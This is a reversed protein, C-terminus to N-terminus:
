KRGRRILSLVGRFYDVSAEAGKRTAVLQPAFGEFQDMYHIWAERQQVETYGDKSAQQLRQFARRQPDNTEELRLRILCMQFHALCEERALSEAIKEAQRYQQRARETAGRGALYKAYDEHAAMMLAPDPESLEACRKIAGEFVTDAGPQNMGALAGAYILEHEAWFSTGVLDDIELQISKLHELAQPAEGKHVCARALDLTYRLNGHDAM